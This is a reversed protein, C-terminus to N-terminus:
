RQPNWKRKYLGLEITKNEDFIKVCKIAIAHDDEIYKSKCGSGIEQCEPHLCIYRNRSMIDYILLTTIDPRYLRLRDLWERFNLGRLYETHAKWYLVEGDILQPNETNEDQVEKDIYYVKM